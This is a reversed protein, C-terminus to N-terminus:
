AASVNLAKVNRVERGPRLDAVVSMAAAFDETEYVSGGEVLILFRDLQALFARDHSVVLVTGAFSELALELAQASEVDLNDTPEDLLLLNSGELELTLIELRAKEGGSLTEFAQEASRQLGYRALASMSRQRDTTHLTVGELIARRGLDAREGGQSFYGAEVRSGLEFEGEYRDLKGAFIRLLRSKGSGNSGILGVREGYSVDLDFPDILGAIALSRGRLVRRGSESGRLRPKITRESEPPPPPGADAFRRWRTEAADAKPANKYNQAARQKMTRYHRYLRREEEQWRQLESSLKEQRGARVEAYNAFTGPHIWSGREELTIIKNPAHSLLARDHSIMLVTKGTQELQAELWRKSPIDLYNDPEDLLLIPAEAQLATSLVIRKREGGSLESARRDAIEVWGVGLVERVAKEWLAELQYGGLESWTSIENAIDMGGSPDGEDLRREASLLRTGSAELADPALALLMERVNQELDVGANQSMYAASGGLQVTGSDPKTLGAVIRMLTSKGVGNRGVIAACEGPGVGFSVSSFLQRDPLSYALNSITIHSM